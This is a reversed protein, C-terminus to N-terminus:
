ALAASAYEIFTTMNPLPKPFGLCSFRDPNFAVPNTTAQAANMHANPKAPPWKYEENVPDPTLM